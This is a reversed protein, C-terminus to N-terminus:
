LLYFISITALIFVFHQIGLAAATCHALMFGSNLGGEKVLFAPLESL